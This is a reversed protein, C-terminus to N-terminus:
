VPGHSRPLDPSCLHLLFKLNQEWMWQQGAPGRQRVPSHGPGKGQGEQKQSELSHTSVETIILGVGAEAPCEWCPWPCCDWRGHPSWSIRASGWKVGTTSQIIFGLHLHQLGMGVHNSKSIFTEPLWPKTLNHTSQHNILNINRTSLHRESQVCKLFPWTFVCCSPLQRRALLLTRLWSGFLSAGQNPSGAELVVLLLHRHHKTIAVQASQYSTVWQGMFHLTHCWILVCPGRLFQKSLKRLHLTLDAWWGRKFVCLCMM